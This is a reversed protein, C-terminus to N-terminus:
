LDAPLYEKLNHYLMQNIENDVETSEETVKYKTTIRLQDSTGFTKAEASGFVGELKEKVENADVPRDFKVQYSRGGVFDVGPNLGKTSLSVISLVVAIASIIYAIKKKGLFNYNLDSSCVDSSWDRSFRTHRRRSSFFFF